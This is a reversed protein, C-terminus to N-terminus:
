PNNKREMVTLDNFINAFQHAQYPRAYQQLAERDVSSATYGQQKWAEYEQKLFACVEDVNTAALGARTARIAEALYSEDSRVCLIPKEVALSEFFKTTMVGKPGDAASRNTLLLLISSENLVKPIDTAPVYGKFHMYPLLHYREAEAAIVKRSAEDVYWDVRCDSAQMTKERILISFAEFFLAPDRMATSLLRGTYTIVFHSTPTHVPYFLEPDYGNYILETHPNYQKLQEVHWPSVTTAVSAQRLARNRRRMGIRTHLKVLLKGLGFLVPPRHTIYEEGTYQEIIDRLDVVLPLRYRRAAKRAATLPFTRFSSCLIIDFDGNGLLKNAERLIKRDKYAFLLDGLFTFLWQRRRGGPTSATYYSVRHTETEGSLFSFAQEDDVAETLIVPEWGESRVYKCLYGMRPGFAPPFLDCIILVRKM